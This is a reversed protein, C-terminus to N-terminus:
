LSSRPYFVLLKTWTTSASMKQTLDYKFKRADEKQRRLAEEEEIWRWCISFMVDSVTWESIFPQIM